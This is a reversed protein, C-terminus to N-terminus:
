GAISPNYSDGKGLNCDACLVRLKSPETKGGKSVPKIHDIHLIVGDEQSRGCIQCRFGDRQLIQYRLTNTMLKREKSIHRKKEEYSYLRDCIYIFTAAYFYGQDQYHNRKKPSTYVKRVDLRFQPAHLKRRQYISSELKLYDEESLSSERSWSKGLLKKIEEYQKSYQRYLADDAVVAEYISTYARFHDALYHSLVQHLSKSDYQAKSRCRVIIQITHDCEGSLQGTTTDNLDELKRLAQSSDAVIKRRHHHRVMVVSFLIIFVIVILEILLEPTM